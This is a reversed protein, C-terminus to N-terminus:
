GLSERELVFDKIKGKRQGSEQGKHSTPQSRAKLDLVKWAGCTVKDRM